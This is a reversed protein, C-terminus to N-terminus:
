RIPHGQWVQRVWTTMAANRYYPLTLPEGKLLGVLSGLRGSRPHLPVFRCSRCLAELKPVHVWDDADDVFAGLHVQFRKALHQLLHFSRIKDGKNPPYPIRHSLFLLHPRAASDM